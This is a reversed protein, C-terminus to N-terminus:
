ATNPVMMAIRWSVETDGDSAGGDMTVDDDDDDDADDHFCVMQVCLVDDQLDDVEVVEM